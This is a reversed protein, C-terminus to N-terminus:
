PLIYTLTFGNLTTATPSAAYIKGGNYFVTMTYRANQDDRSGIGYVVYGPRIETPVSAMVTALANASVAISLGTGSITVVNGYRYAVIHTDGTSIAVTNNPKPIVGSGM